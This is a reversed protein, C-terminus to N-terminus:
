LARGNPRTMGDPYRDFPGPTATTPGDVELTTEGTVPDAIAKALESLENKRAADIPGNGDGWPTIPTGDSRYGQSPYDSM